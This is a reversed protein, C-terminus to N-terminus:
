TYLRLDNAASQSIAIVRESKAVNELSRLYHQRLVPSGYPPAFYDGPFILPIADYFTTVVPCVTIASYYPHMFPVTNHFVDVKLRKLLYQIRHSYAAITEFSPSHRYDLDHGDVSLPISHVNPFQTWDFLANEKPVPGHMLLYLEIGPDEALVARVQQQTYRGMGRMAAESSVAKFDVAVRMHKRRVAVRTMRKIM